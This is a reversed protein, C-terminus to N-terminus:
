SRIISARGESQQKCSGNIRGCAVHFRALRLEEQQPGGSCRRRRQGGGMERADGDGGGGAFGYPRPRLPRQRHCPDLRLEEQSTERRARTAMPTPADQFKRPHLTSWFLRFVAFVSARSAFISPAGSYIAIAITKVIRNSQM